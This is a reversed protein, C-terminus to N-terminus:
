IRRTYTYNGCFELACHVFDLLDYWVSYLCSIIFSGMILSFQPGAGGRGIQGSEDLNQQLIIGVKYGFMRTESMCINYM